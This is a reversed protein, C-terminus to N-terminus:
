NVCNADYITVCVPSMVFRRCFSEQLCYFLSLLQRSLISSPPSFCALLLSVDARARSHSYIIKLSKKFLACSLQSLFPFMSFFTETSSRSANFCNKLRGWVPGFLLDSGDWTPTASFPHDRRTSRGLSSYMHARHSSNRPRRQLLFFPFYIKIACENSRFQQKHRLAMDRASVIFVANFFHKISAVKSSRMYQAFNMHIWDMRGTM